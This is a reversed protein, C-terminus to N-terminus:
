VVEAISQLLLALSCQLWCILILMHHSAMICSVNNSKARFIEPRGSSTHVHSDVKYIEENRGLM